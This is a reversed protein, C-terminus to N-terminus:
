SWHRLEISDDTLIGFSRHHIWDGANLYHRGPQVELLEPRHAHGFIVLDLEPRRALLARAHASLREARERDHEPGARRRAPTGSVRRALPFSLDPPVLRFLARFAASRTTRKLIRYGLDRELLGDGHAVYARRTAISIEVPGDLLEIGIEDALFSGAWADHNGGVLRVQLGADVLESLCRLVRFCRRPVVNRYEFWFDFLDGNILLEHATGVLSELFSVFARETDPPVEGLHVDSIVISTRDPM